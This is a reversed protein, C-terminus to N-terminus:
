AWLYITLVCKLMYMSKSFGIGRRVLRRLHTRMNLHKREIHNTSGHATNHISEPIIYKYLKLQDTYIKTAGSLILSDTVRGITRKTRYGISIRVVSKKNRCWASVIWIRRSKKMVYTCLEDVEYEKGIILAPPKIKGAIKRIRSLVTTCSICLLRSISRVGM